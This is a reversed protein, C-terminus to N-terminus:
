SFAGCLRQLCRRLAAIARRACSSVLALSSAGAVLGASGGLWGGGACGSTGVTGNGSAGTLIVSLAVRCPCSTMTVRRPVSKALTLACTSSALWHSLTCAGAWDGVCPVPCDSRQSRGPQHLLCLTCIVCFWLSPREQHDWRVASPQHLPLYGGGPLTCARGWKWLLCPIVM